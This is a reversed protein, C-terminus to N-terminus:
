IRSTTTCPINMMGTCSKPHTSHCFSTRKTRSGTLYKPVLIKSSRIWFLYSAITTFMLYSPRSIILIATVSWLTQEISSTSCGIIIIRIISIPSIVCSSNLDEQEQETKLASIKMCKISARYISLNSTQSQLPTSSKPYSNISTIISSLIPINTINYSKQAIVSLGLHIIMRIETIFIKPRM